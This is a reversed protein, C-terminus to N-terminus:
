RTIQRGRELILSLATHRLYPSRKHKKEKEKEEQPAPMTSKHEAREEVYGGEERMTSLRIPYYSSSSVPIMKSVKDQEKVRSSLVWKRKKKKLYSLLGILM